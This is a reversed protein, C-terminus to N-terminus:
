HAHDRTRTSAPQEPCDGRRSLVKELSERSEDEWSGSRVWAARLRSEALGPEPEPLELFVWPHLDADRPLGDCDLGFDWLAGALRQREDSTLWQWRSLVALRVAARKRATGETGLGKDLLRVVEVWASENAESRDPAPCDRVSNAADLIYGPDRFHNEMDVTFGDVGVIPLRLLDLAHQAQLSSPLAEWSRRLLNGLPESYQIRSHIRPNRYLSQALQLVSEVEEPKLRLVFRSLAEMAAELRQSWPWWTQVAGTSREVQELALEITRRQSQALSSALDPAM